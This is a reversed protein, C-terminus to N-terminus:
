NVKKTRFVEIIITEVCLTIPIALLVGLIGGIKGGVMLAVLTLIPNINVARKMVWPVILNNELQQIIVYLALVVPVLYYNQTLAILIAPIVAVTPGLNPVVELVGAIIALPITYKLGILNLGIFTTVGVVLMLVLEGWFWAAMRKEVKDFILAVKEAKEKEFFRMLLNKIINEEMTFYLGFFLTSLLFITNSFIAGVIKSAQNTLDPIYQSLSDFSLGKTLNPNIQYFIIPLNKILQTTEYVIPNITGVLVYFIFLVFFVFLFVASVGRPIKKRELFQVAPKTASM